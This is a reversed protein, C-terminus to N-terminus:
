PQSILERTLHLRRRLVIDESSRGLEVSYDDVPAVWRHLDVDFAQFSRAGLHFSVRRSEGPGLEIREFGKLERKPRRLASSNEGIYLQAVDAGSVKGANRITASVDYGDTTPEIKLNSYLFSTYSLGFGFPFRAAVGKMQYGRYGVFVGARYHVVSSNDTPYYSDHVPNDEWRKEFSVSLRGSFDSSGSLLNAIATGGEQGPYWTEILASTKDAWRSMDVNGGSTLLVIARPNVAEIQEILEDQGIPLDFTRDAGEGELEADYGVSLVVVDALSALTKAAESVVTNLPFIGVRIVNGINLGHAAYEFTVKHEGPALPLRIQPAASTRLTWCDIFVKDDILLRFRLQEGTAVVFAGYMGEKDVHYYGTWRRFSHVLGVQHLLAEPDSFSMEGLSEVTTTPEENLHLVIETSAPRGSLSEDAYTEMVLGRTTGDRTTTFHTKQALEKPSPIGRDYLVTGAVGFKRSIGDLFSIAEYPKVGASGGAVPITPYADPGILAIRLGPKPTLPLLHGENKLLVMAETASRLAVTRGPENFRSVSADLQPRDLWGFRVDNRLLRRVKDDITAEQVTGAQIAPLLRNANMFIGFPMELDLGNNAAAVAHYTALWDSVIPGRFGWEKKAIELNLMGNQTAHEGNILNYSDMLGGVQGEKVAM